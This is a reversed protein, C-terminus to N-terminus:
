ATGPDPSLWLEGRTVTTDQVAPKVRGNAQLALAAGVVANQTGRSIYLRIYRKQPKTVEVYFTTNDETDAVTVSTGTLDAFNGDTTDDSQQVKISTVAGSTITGFSVVFLCTEYDSMDIASGKIATAAAVGADVTTAQTIKVGSILNQLM